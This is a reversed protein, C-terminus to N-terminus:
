MWYSTLLYSFFDFLYLNDSPRLFTQMIFGVFHCGTGPFEPGTLPTEVLWFVGFASVYGLWLGCDTQCRTWAAQQWRALRSANHVRFVVHGHHVIM